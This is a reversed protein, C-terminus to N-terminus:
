KGAVSAVFAAVENAQSGSVVNAPMGDPGTAIANKVTAQDPRVADLDPGVQGSTGAAKLTHCSGCKAAFLTRGPAGTTMRETGHTSTPTSPCSRSPPRSRRSSSVSAPTSTNTTGSPAGGGCGAVLGLAAASLVLTVVLIAPSRHHHRMFRGYIERYNAIKRPYRRCARGQRVEDFGEATKSAAPADSGAGVNRRSTTRM